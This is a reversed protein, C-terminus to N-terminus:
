GFIKVVSLSWGPVVDNANHVSTGTLVEISKKTRYVRVTRTAPDVVLAMATGAELWMQAKAEVQASADTPTVALFRICETWPRDGM